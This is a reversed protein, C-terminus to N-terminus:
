GAIKSFTASRPPHKERKESLESLISVKSNGLISTMQRSSPELVIARRVIGGGGKGRSIAELVIGGSLKGGHWDGGLCNSGRGIAGGIIRGM